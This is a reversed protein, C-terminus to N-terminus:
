SVSAGTDLPVYSLYWAMTGTDSADTTWTITGANVAFGSAPRLRFGSIGAGAAPSLTRANSWAWTPAVSYTMTITGFAPVLYTGAGTGVTAGNVSVNTMTGGTIVVKATFPNPNSQAVTSLPVSPTSVAASGNIPATLTTGAALSAVATATAIGDTKATGGTPATGVSLNTGTAGLSSAVLGLLGTVVVAGGFVTFLTGTATQPLAQAAKVVQTGSLLERLQYGQIIASM